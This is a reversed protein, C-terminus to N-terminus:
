SIVTTKLMSKNIKIDHKKIKYILNRRCIGLKKATEIQSGKMKILTKIIISKEYSNVMEKLKLDETIENISMNTTSNM